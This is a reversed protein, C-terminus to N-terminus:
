KTFEELKKLLKERIVPKDSEGKTVRRNLGEIAKEAWELETLAKSKEKDRIIKHAQLTDPSESGLIEDLNSNLTRFFNKKVKFSPMLCVDWNVDFKLNEKRCEGEFYYQELVKGDNGDNVEPAEESPLDIFELNKFKEPWNKHGISRSDMFQEPTEKEPKYLHWPFSTRVITDGNKFIRTKM